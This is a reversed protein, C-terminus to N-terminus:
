SSANSKLAWLVGLVLIVMFVKPLAWMITEEFSRHMPPNTTTTEEVLPAFIVPEEEKKTIPISPKPVEVIPTSKHIGIKSQLEKVELRLSRIEKELTNLRNDTEHEMEGGVGLNEVTIMGKSELSKVVQGNHVLEGLCYVKGNQELSKEAGNVANEVGPCFGALKGVVIEM